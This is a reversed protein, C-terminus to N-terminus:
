IRRLRQALRLSVGAPQARVLVVFAGDVFEQASDELTAAGVEEEPRELRKLRPDRLQRDVAAQRLERDLDRCGAHRVEILACLEPILFVQLRLDSKVALGRGGSRPGVPRGFIYLLFFVVKNM